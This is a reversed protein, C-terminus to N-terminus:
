CTHMIYERAQMHVCVRMRVCAIVCASVRVCARVCVSVCVLVTVNAAYLLRKLLSIYLTVIICWKWTLSADAVATKAMGQLSHGTVPQTAGAVPPSTSM